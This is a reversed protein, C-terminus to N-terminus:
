FKFVNSGMRQKEKIIGYKRGWREWGFKLKIRLLCVFILVVVDEWLWYFLIFDRGEEWLVLLIIGFFFIVCVCFLITIAMVHQDVKNKNSINIMKSIICWMKVMM